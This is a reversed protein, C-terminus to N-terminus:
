ALALLKLLQGPSEIVHDAGWTEIREGDGLYGWAAAVTRMGAARGAQVDRLDDGVYVCRVPEVNMRRAAELLPAPHPKAHPTTDGCVLTAAERGLGLAQVLPASFRTAKNTVIGWPWAAERLADLVPRMADFLRTERTMRAEYRSLFEDRLTEFDADGPQVQLARGLMGRAGSGVMPRFHALPLLPLGRAARMENGAGALDPASDILTGDLDFLVAHVALRSM